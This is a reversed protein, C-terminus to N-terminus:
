AADLDVDPQRHFQLGHLAYRFTAHGERRVHLRFFRSSCPAPTGRLGSLEVRQWRMPSRLARFSGVRRWPGDASEATDLNVRAAGFTSAVGLLSIACVPHTEGLDLVIWKDRSAMEMREGGPVLWHTKEDGDVACEPGFGRVSHSARVAAPTIKSPPDDAARRRDGGGLGLFRASCAPAFLLTAVAAINMM